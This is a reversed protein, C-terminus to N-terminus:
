IPSRIRETPVTVPSPHLGGAADGLAVAALARATTHAAGSCVCPM